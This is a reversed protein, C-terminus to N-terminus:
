DRTRLTFGLCQQLWDKEEAVWSRRPKGVLNQPRTHTYRSVYSNAEQVSCYGPRPIFRVQNALQLWEDVSRVYHDTGAEATADHDWIVMEDFEGKTQLAGMDIQDEADV